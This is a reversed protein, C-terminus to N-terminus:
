IGAGAKLELHELEQSQHEHVRLLLLRRGQEGLLEDLLVSQLHEEVDARDAAGEVHLRKADLDDVHETGAVCAEDLHDSDVRIQDGVQAVNDDRLVEVVVDVADLLLSEGLQLLLPLQGLNLGLLLATMDKAALAVLNLDDVVLLVLILVLRLVLVELVLRLEWLCMPGPYLRESVALGPEHSRLVDLLTVLVLQDDIEILVVEIRLAMALSVGDLVVLQGGGIGVVVDLEVRLLLPLEVHEKTSSVVGSLMGDFSEVEAILLGPVILLAAGEVDIPLGLVGILPVLPLTLIDLDLLSELVGGLPRLHWWRRLALRLGLECEPGHAVRFLILFVGVLARPPQLSSSLALAEVESHHTSWLLRGCDTSDWARLGGGVRRLSRRLLPAVTEEPCLGLLVHVVPLLNLLPVLEAVQLYIQILAILLKHHLRLLQRAQFLVAEVLELGVHRLVLLLDCLM